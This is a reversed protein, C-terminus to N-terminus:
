LTCSLSPFGERDKGRRLQEMTRYCATGYDFQQSRCGRRLTARTEGGADKVKIVVEFAEQDSAKWRKMPIVTKGLRTM